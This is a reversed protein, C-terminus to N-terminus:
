RGESDLWGIPQVSYRLPESVVIPVVRGNKVVATSSGYRNMGFIDGILGPGHQYRSDFGYGDPANLGNLVRRGALTDIRVTRSAEGPELHSPLDLRVETLGLTRHDFIFLTAQPLYTNPPAPHVDAEVRGDRVRFAVVVQSATPQYASDARLLLDYAPPAVTWRPVASAVLFVAVVLVPLAVAAVLFLSHRAGREAPGPM